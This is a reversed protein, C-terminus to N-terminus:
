PRASRVSRAPYWQIGLFADITETATPMIWDTEGDIALSDSLPASIDAGFLIQEDKAPSFVTVFNDEGDM